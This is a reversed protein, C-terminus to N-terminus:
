DPQIGQQKVVQRWKAEEARFIKMSEEPDEMSLVLGEQAARKRFVDSDCAKRLTQHLQRRLATPTGGTVFLGYWGDAEYGVVGAEAFTPVQPLLASRKSGTVALARLKGSALFPAVSPLTGFGMDIQGGLLDTLMPTAGRYPVHTIYVKAMVKFLEASLHTSTGNGASGYVLGGPRTRARAMLDAASAIPSDTRVVAVNPARGVLMVPALGTDAPYPLKAYLSPVIAVASTNLLLTHGDPQSKAVFDNGVVTGAGPKNDVIVPQGLEKTLGEAITRAVSDTGGGAPFPVVLRLPRNPFAQSWTPSAGMACLLVLLDRRAILALSITEASM